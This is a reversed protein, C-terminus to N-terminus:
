THLRSIGTTEIYKKNHSHTCQVSNHTGNFKWHRLSYPIFPSIRCGLMNRNIHSFPHELRVCQKLSCFRCKQSVCQATDVSMYICQKCVIQSFLFYISSRSLSLSIYLSLSTPLALSFSIFLDFYVSFIPSVTVLSKAKM